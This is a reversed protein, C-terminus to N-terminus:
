RLWSAINVVVLALASAAIGFLIADVLMGLHARQKPTM